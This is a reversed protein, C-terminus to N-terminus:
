ARSTLSTYFIPIRLADAEALRILTAPDTVFEARTGDAITFYKGKFPELRSTDGTRNFHMVANDFVAFRRRQALTTTPVVVPGSASPVNLYRIRLQSPTALRFRGGRERRVKSGVLHLFTRPKIHEARTATSLSAGKGMRRLARRARAHAETKARRQHLQRKTGASRTTKSSRRATTRRSKQPRRARKRHKM